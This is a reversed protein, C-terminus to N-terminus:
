DNTQVHVSEGKQILKLDLGEKHLHSLIEEFIWDANTNYAVGFRDEADDKDTWFDDGQNLSAQIVIDIEGQQM